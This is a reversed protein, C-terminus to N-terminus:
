AVARAFQAERVRPDVVALSLDAILNFLIVLIAAFATTALIVPYDRGIVAEFGVRGLGPWSFVVETILSGSLLGPIALALFQIVPSLAYRLAHVGLIRRESIGRARAMRIHEQGLAELLSGRVYRALFGSFALGLVSAPLVLHWLLDRARALPPLSEAGISWMGGAPFLPWHVAFLLIAMLSLWFVPLSFFILSLVRLLHDLPRDRRLAGAVGVLFGVGLLIALASTALAFTPLVAEGLVKAVPRNQVMSMGWDGHVAAKLWLAYQEILPRDLGYIRRLNAQAALTMRSDEILKGPDGPTAHAIFFVVSLVLWLLLVSAGLRRLLFSTV